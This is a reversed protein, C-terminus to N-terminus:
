YTNGKHIIAQTRDGEYYDLLDSFLKSQAGNPAQDIAYGNNESIVYYAADEGLVQAVEDLAAKVKKDKINLCQM